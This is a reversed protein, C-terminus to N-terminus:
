GALKWRQLLSEMVAHNWRQLFDKMVTSSVKLLLNIITAASANYAQPNMFFTAARRRRNEEVSIFCCPQTSFKITTLSVLTKQFWDMGPKGM